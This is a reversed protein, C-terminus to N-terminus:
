RYYKEYDNFDINLKADKELRRLWDELTGIKKRDLAKKSYDDRAAKVKEDDPKEIELVKFIIIGKETSAPRSIEAPKLSSAIDAVATLEGLDEIKDSKSFFPTTRVALGLKSAAEDFSAKDNAALDEINKHLETAHKYALTRAEVDILFSKINDKAEDFTAPRPPTKDEKSKPTLMIQAKNKEYYDKIASEDITVKGTFDKLDVMIYAIRFRGNDKMYEELIEEDTPKLDYTFIDNLRQIELNQRVMEEFSRPELALNYRLVYDYVKDDFKGNRNFIPHSRITDVLEKNSIKIDYKKAEELMILRDWALKALFPKNKLFANLIEPQNFYNLIIQCRISIVSGAFDDFSIKEGGITGVYSPGKNKSGGLSGTGWWVFAPLILILTGWFIIKAIHKQRFFKLM